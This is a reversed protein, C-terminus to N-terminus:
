SGHARARGATGRDHTRAREADRGDVPHPVREELDAHIDHRDALDPQAVLVEVNDGLRGGEAALGGDDVQLVVLAGDDPDVAADLRHELRTEVRQPGDEVVHLDLGEIRAADTEVMGVQGRDDLDLAGRDQQLRDGDLRAM